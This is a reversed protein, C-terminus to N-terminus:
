FTPTIGRVRIPGDSDGYTEEAVKGRLWAERDYLDALKQRVRQANGHQTSHVGDTEIAIILAQVRELAATYTEIAM